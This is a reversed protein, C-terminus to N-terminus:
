DVKFYIEPHCMTHFNGGYVDILCPLLIAWWMFNIEASETDQYEIFYSRIKM